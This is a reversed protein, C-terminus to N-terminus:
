AAHPNTEAIADRIMQQIVEKKLGVKAKKGGTVQIYRARIESMAVEEVPMDEVAVAFADPGEPAISEPENAVPEVPRPATREPPPGQCMAPSDVWGAGEPVDDPHNFLKREPKPGARYRYRWTKHANKARSDEDLKQQILQAETPDPM